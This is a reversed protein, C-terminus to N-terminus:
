LIRVYTARSGHSQGGGQTTGVSDGVPGGGVSGRGVSRGRM